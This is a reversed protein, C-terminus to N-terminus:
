ELQVLNGLGFENIGKYVDRTNKHYYVSLSEFVGPAM